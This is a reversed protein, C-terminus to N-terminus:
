SKKYWMQPIAYPFGKNVSSWLNQMTGTKTLVNVLNLESTISYLFTCYMTDSFLLGM